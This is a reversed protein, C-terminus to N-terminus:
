SLRRTVTCQIEAVPAEGPGNLYFERSSGSVVEYDNQEIWRWLAQWADTLLDFSGKHITNAVQEARPLTRVTITSEGYSFMGEQLNADVVFGNEVDINNETYEINYYIARSPGTPHTHKSRLWEAVTQFM